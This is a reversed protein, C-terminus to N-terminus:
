RAVVAGAGLGRGVRSAPTVSAAQRTARLKNWLAMGRLASQDRGLARRLGRCPADGHQDRDQLRLPDAAAGLLLRRPRSRRDRGERLELLGVPRPEPRALRGVHDDAFQGARRDHMAANGAAAIILCGNNRASRLGGRHVRGAGAGTSGLSMSIVACRNAIAWNMGALVSGGVSALRFEVLVKGVFIRSKHAIGYRPTTGAPAQPGCATGICHTGHSHLDQVPQGVFTQSAFARGAFDPHGLDMGTDLM